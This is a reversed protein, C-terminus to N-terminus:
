RENSVITGTKTELLQSLKHHLEEITLIEDLFAQQLKDVLSMEDDESIGFKELLKKEKRVFEEPTLLENQLSQELLQLKNHLIHFESRESKSFHKMKLPMEPLVVVKAHLHAYEESLAFRILESFRRAYEAYLFNGRKDRRELIKLLGDIALLTSEQHTQGALKFIVACVASINNSALLGVRDASYVAHRAFEVIQEKLLSEPQSPYKAKGEEGKGNTEAAEEGEETQSAPSKVFFDLIKQVGSDKTMKYVKKLGVTAFRHTLRSLFGGAPLCQLAVLFGEFSATGLSKWLETDTMLLHEAKIHEVQAAITYILEDESFYHDNEQNLHESGIFIFPQEKNRVSVGIKGRSIFCKPPTVGVFDSIRTITRFLEPFNSETVQECYQEIGEHEDTVVLSTLWQQVRRVYEQEGPHVLYKRDDENLKHYHEPRHASSSSLESTTEPMLDPHEATVVSAYNPPALLKYTQLFTQNHVLLQPFEPESSDALQQYVLWFHKYASIYFPAHRLLALYLDAAKELDNCEYEYIVGLDFYAKALDPDASFWKLEALEWCIFDGKKFKESSTRLTIFKQYHEIARPYDQKANYMEGLKLYYLDFDPTKRLLQQYIQICVDWDHREECAAAFYLPLELNEPFLLHLEQLFSSPVAFDLADTLLKMAEDRQNQKSFISLLILYAKMTPVLNLSKQLFPVARDRNDKKLYLDALYLYKEYEPLPFLTTAEKFLWRKGEWVNSSLSKDAITIADKSFSNQYTLVTSQDFVDSYLRDDSALAMLVLRTGTIITWIPAQEAKGSVTEFSYNSSLRLLVFIAEGELLVKTIACAIDPPIDKEIFAPDVIPLITDIEEHQDQSTSGPISVSENNDQEQLDLSLMEIMM